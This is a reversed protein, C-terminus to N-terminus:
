RAARRPGVFRGAIAAAVSIVTAVGIVLLPQVHTGLIWAACFSATPVLLAGIAFGVALRVAPSWEEDLLRAVLWGPLGLCYAIGILQLLPLLIRVSGNDLGPRRSAVAM